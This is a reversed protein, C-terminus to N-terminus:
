IFSIFGIQIDASLFCSRLLPNEHAFICHIQCMRDIILDNLIDCIDTHKFLIFFVEDM